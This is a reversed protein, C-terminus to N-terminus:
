VVVTSSSKFSGFACSDASSVARATSVTVSSVFMVFLVSISTAASVESM